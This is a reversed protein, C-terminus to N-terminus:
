YGEQGRAGVDAADSAAGHGPVVWWARCWVCSLQNGSNVSTTRWQGSCEKHLANGCEECFVLATEAVGHTGDYCIPCDDEKGPILKKNQPAPTVATPRGLARNHAERILPNTVDNPALPAKTESETTLLAWEKKREVVDGWQYTGELGEQKVVGLSVIAALAGLGGGM